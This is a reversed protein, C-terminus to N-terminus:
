IHKWTIRQIISYITHTSVGYKIGLSKYTHTKGDYLKRITVIDNSTLKSRGNLFGRVQRNKMDRDNNNDAINGLFLHLPNCCAPNDCTHCIIMGKPIPGYTLEYSVRHVGYHKDNISIRGYGQKNKYGM